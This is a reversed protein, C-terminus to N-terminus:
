TCCVNFNDMDVCTRPRKIKSVSAYTFLLTPRSLHDKWCQMAEEVLYTPRPAGIIHGVLECPKFGGPNAEQRQRLIITYLGATLLKAFSFSATSSPRLKNRIVGRIKLWTRCDKIFHPYERTDACPCFKSIRKKGNPWLQLRYRQFWRYAFLNNFWKRYVLKCKVKCVEGGSNLPSYNLSSVDLLCINVCVNNSCTHVACKGLSTSRIEQDGKIFTSM